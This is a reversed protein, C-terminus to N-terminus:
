KGRIKQMLDSLTDLQKLSTDAYIYSWGINTAMGHIKDCHKNFRDQYDSRIAATKEITISQEGSYDSFRVRGEFPLTAEAPDALHLFVGKRGLMNFHDIHKELRADDMLFDSAMVVHGTSRKAGGLPFDSLTNKQDLLAYAFRDLHLQGHSLSLDGGVLTFEEESRDLLIALALLLTAGASEKSPLDPRSRFKMGESRDLWFYMADSSQQEVQRIHPAQRKASQRWDIQQAEEGEEYPKFQWFDQGTGSRRRGHPGSLLVRSLKQASLVLAPLASALEDAAARHTNIKHFHDRISKM